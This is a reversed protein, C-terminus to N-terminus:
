EGKGERRWRWQTVTVFQFTACPYQIETDPEHGVRNRATAPMASSNGPNELVVLLIDSHRIQSHRLAISARHEPLEDAM